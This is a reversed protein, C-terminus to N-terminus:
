STKTVQAPAIKTTKRAPLYAAFCTLLWVFLTVLIGVTLDPTGQVGLNKLLLYNLWLSLFVGLVIGALSLLSNEIILSKVVTQKSAGIARMIGINKKRMSISFTVLAIIGLSTIILAIFSIAFMVFAFSSRGDWLRKKARASFEVRSVLRGPEQYLLNEITELVNEETGEAVRIIYNVETNRGYIAEPIVMANYWVQEYTANEGLMKDAFTGIVQYPTKANNLYVTKGLASAGDFLNKALEDSILAVSAPTTSQDGQVFENSYFDRGSTISLILSELGQENIGFLAVTHNKANEDQDDIVLDNSSRRTDIVNEEGSYTATVVEPLAKIAALDREILQGKDVEEDFVHTVVNLIQQEELKSPILWNQLTAYSIFASNSIIMLTIAVQFVILLSISKQKLILKFIHKMSM